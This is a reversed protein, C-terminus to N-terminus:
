SVELEELSCSMVIERDIQTEVGKRFFANLEGLKLATLKRRAKEEWAAISPLSIIINAEEKTKLERELEHVRTELLMIKRENKMMKVEGQNCCRM